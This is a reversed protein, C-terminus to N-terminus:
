PGPAGSPAWTQVLPGQPSLPMRAIVTHQDTVHHGDRDRVDARVTLVDGDLVPWFAKDFVLAYPAALQVTGDNGALFDLNRCGKALSVQVGARDVATFDVAAPTDAGVDLGEVRVNVVFMWVTQPGHVVNVDEGDVMPSFQSGLGIQASGGAVPAVTTSCLDLVEAPGPDAACAALTCSCM